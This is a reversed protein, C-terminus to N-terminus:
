INSNSTLISEPSVSFVCRDMKQRGEGHMSQWRGMTRHKRRIVSSTRFIMSSLVTKCAVVGLWTSKKQENLIYMRSPRRNSSLFSTIMWLQKVNDSTLHSAAPFIRIASASFYHRISASDSGAEQPIGKLEFIQFKFTQIQRQSFTLISGLSLSFHTGIGIRRTFKFYIKAERRWADITVEGNNSM